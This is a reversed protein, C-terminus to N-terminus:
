KLKAIYAVNDYKINIYEKKISSIYKGILRIIIEFEKQSTCNKRLTGHSRWGRVFDKKKVKVNFRQSIKRIKIFIKLKKLLNKYDIRRDGYKYDPKNKLIIKEINKQHKNDLVRYNWMCCFYGNKILLRKIEMAAKKYNLTNFSSGFFACHISNDKLGTVEGTGTSWNLNKFIKTNKKGYLMMNKNPEVANVILGFKCLLKTLKGTGAGIDAVPYYRKCKTILLIRKVLKPSYDARLDYYKALNSYDWKLKIKNLM